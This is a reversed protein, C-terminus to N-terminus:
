VQVMVQRRNVLSVNDEADRVQAYDQRRDTDQLAQGRKQYRCQRRVRKGTGRM